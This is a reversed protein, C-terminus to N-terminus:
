PLVVKLEGDGGGARAHVILTHRGTHSARYAVLVDGGLGGGEAVFGADGAPDIVQLAADFTASRLSLWVVDGNALDLHVHSGPTVAITRGPEINPLPRSETQLTFVGSGSWGCCLVHLHYIGPRMVLFRHAATRDVPSRDDVAAIKNGDPDWLDLFPDFQESAVAVDVMEGAELPVHFWAGEGLPLKGEIREGARVDRGSTNMAIEYPAANSGQHRLSVELVACRRVFFPHHKCGGKDFQGLAVFAPGRETPDVERVDFALQAEPMRVDLVVCQRAPLHFRWTDLGYAAIRENTREGMAHEGVRALQTLTQCRKGGSGEVRVFCDGDRRARYGGFQEGLPVRQDDLVATLRGDGLVTPVLVDGAKLAVRYHWWQERGFTHTSEGNAALPETRFRHLAYDYHGGGSGKFATVRFEYAGKQPARIWLESRLGEGDNSGLQKGDAGVLSLVPDFDGSEVVCWLMEDVEVDLKWVDTLGPSLLKREMFDRGPIVIRTGEQAPAHAALTALLLPFPFSRLTPM